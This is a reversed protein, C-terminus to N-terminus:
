AGKLFTAGFIGQFVKLKCVLGLNVFCNEQYDHEIFFVLSLLNIISNGLSTNPSGSVRKHFPKTCVYEGHRNINYIPANQILKLKDIVEKSM